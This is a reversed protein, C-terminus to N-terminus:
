AHLMTIFREVDPMADLTACVDAGDPLAMRWWRAPQHTPMAQRERPSLTTAALRAQVADPPLDHDLADLGTTEAVALFDDGAAILDSLAAGTAVAALTLPFYRGVKDVSPLLVGLAADPGCQGPPLAFYWIPAHLWAPLWDDGLQARSGAIMRQCWADWPAVFSGPLGLRVFDGRAPLKGFVGVLTRAPATVSGSV